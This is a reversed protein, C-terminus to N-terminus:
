RGGSSKTPDTMGASSAASGGLGRLLATRMAPQSTRPDLWIGFFAPGFDPDAIDGLPKDNLWFRTAAGPRYAGALRDGPRVDPFLSKMQALWAARQTASAREPQRGMETDSREAIREGSLSMAYRLELVLERDFPANRVPQTMSPMRAESAWLTAEYVRLGFWRLTYDGVPLTSGLVSRALASTTTSIESARVSAGWLAVGTSVMLCAIIAARRM